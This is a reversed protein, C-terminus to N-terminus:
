ADEKPPVGVVVNAFLDVIPARPQVSTADAPQEYNAWINDVMKESLFRAVPFATVKSGNQLYVTIFTEPEGTSKNVLEMLGVVGSEVAGHLMILSNKDRESIM